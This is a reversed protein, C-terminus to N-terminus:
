KIRPGLLREMEKQKKISDPHKPNYNGWYDKREKTKIIKFKAFPKDLLKFKWNTKCFQCGIINNKLDQAVGVPLNKPYYSNMACPGSKSQFELKRGCEPCQMFLSDFMGM